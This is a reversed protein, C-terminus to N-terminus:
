TSFYFAFDGALPNGRRDKLGRISVKYLNGASLRGLRVSFSLGDVGPTLAEVALDYGGTGMVRSLSLAGMAEAGDVPASFHFTLGEWTPSPGLVYNGLQANSSDSVNTVALYRSGPGDVVWTFVSRNTSRNGASDKLGEGVTLEYTSEIRLPSEPIFQAETNSPWLYHGSVAPNFRVASYVSAPEVAKTFRLVIVDEKEGGHLLAGPSLFGAATVSASQLQPAVLDAGVFFSSTWAEKLARGSIAKTGAGVELSYRTAWSLSEKFNLIVRGAGANSLSYTSSPSVTINDRLSDTDMARSFTLSIQNTTAPLVADAAPEMALVVPAASEGTTSFVRQWNAILNNGRSDEAGRDLQIRVTAGSMLAAVPTFILNSEDKWSIRGEVGVNEASVSLARATSVHDMATSFALRIQANTDVGNEQEAPVASIVQPPNLGWPDMCATPILGAAVMAITLVLHYFGALAPSNKGKKPFFNNPVQFFHRPGM